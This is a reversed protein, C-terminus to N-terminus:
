ILLLHHKRVISENVPSSESQNGRYLGVFAIFTSLVAQRSIQLDRVDNNQTKVSCNMKRTEKFTLRKVILTNSYPAILCKAM